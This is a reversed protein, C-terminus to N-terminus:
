RNKLNKQIYFLGPVTLVTSLAQFSKATLHIDDTAIGVASGLILSSLITSVELVRGQSQQSRLSHAAFFTLSNANSVADLNIFVTSVPHVPAAQRYAWFAGKLSRAKHSARSGVQLAIMEEEDQAVENFYGLSTTSNGIWFIPYICCQLVTMFYWTDETTIVQLTNVSIVVFFTFIVGQKRYPSFDILAGILPQSVAAIAM